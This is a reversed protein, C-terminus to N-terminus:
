HKHTEKGESQAEDSKGDSIRIEKAPIYEKKQELIRARERIKFKKSSTFIICITIVAIVLAAAFIYFMIDGMTKIPKLNTEADEAFCTASASLAIIFVILLLIAALKKKM